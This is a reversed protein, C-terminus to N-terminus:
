RAFFFVSRMLGRVLRLFRQEVSLTCSCLDFYSFLLVFSTLFQRSDLFVLFFVGDERVLECNCDRLGECDRAIVSRLWFDLLVCSISLFNAFNRCLITWFPRRKVRATAWKKTIQRWIYIKVTVTDPEYSSQWIYINSKIDTIMLATGSCYSTLASFDLFSLDFIGIKRAGRLGSASTLSDRRM